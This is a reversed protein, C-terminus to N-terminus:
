NATHKTSQMILNCLMGLALEAVQYHLGRLVGRVSRSQNDQVFRVQTGIAQVFRKENYTELFTGRADGHVEPRLRLVGELETEEVQM